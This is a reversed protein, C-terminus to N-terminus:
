EFFKFFDKVSSKDTNLDQFVNALTAIKEPKMNNGLIRIIAFGKDNANGFIVLEDIETDTGIYKIIFKGDTNNGGRMLDKYRDDKLLARVKTLEIKYGEINDEELSYGLMNLKSVSEYAEKQDKTLKDKDINVFSKPIDVSIFNPAEQHTVFYAQLTEGYECSTLLMLVLFSTVLNKISSYNM